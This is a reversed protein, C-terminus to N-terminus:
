TKRKVSRARLSEVLDPTVPQNGVHKLESFWGHDDSGGSVLLDFQRALALFHARAPEDLRFHYVELGDLGAEVLLALQDAGLLDDGGCKVTVPHALVAVGGARHISAIVQQITFCSLRVRVWHETVLQVAPEWEGAYGKSQVALILPLIGAYRPNEAFVDDLSLPHGAATLRACCDATRAHIDDLTAREFARFDPDDLDVFYGLVDIDGLGPPADCAPWRCTFEIAPILELGLERALPLAERVGGTNDHDTLAVTELGIRAAHRLIDAPSYKGDSYHTHIHLDITATPTM